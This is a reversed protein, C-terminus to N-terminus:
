RSDRQRDPRRGRGRHRGAGRDHRWDVHKRSQDRRQYRHRDPQERRSLGDGGCRHACGPGRQGLDPKTLQGHQGGVTNNPAAIVVGAGANPVAILGTSDTGIFNGAVVNGSSAAGTISVGASGNGSIINLAAAALGGVSGGVSNGSGTNISVGPGRNGLSTHGDQAVGIFNGIILNNSAVKNGSSIAIAPIAGPSNGGNGSIVNTAGAVSGGVTVNAADLLIGYAGNGLAAQGTSDTGILNGLVVNGTGSSTVFIGEASNGSIVNAAGAAVGGITVGSPSTNSSGIAIGSINPIAAIGARNTGVYNGEILSAAGPATTAILIGAFGNGSLINRTGPTTGGITLGNSLGVLVGYQHNPIAIGGAADTGVLNGAITLAASPQSVFIGNETNGSLVNGAGASSGGITQGTGLVLVGSATNAIAVSGSADVGIYNGQVVSNSAAGATNTFEVGYSGNGSIVNRAAALTGGIIHGLGGGVLVGSGGNALAASGSPNTGIFNGLVEDASSAAGGISVGAGTNGSIVNGLTAAAGGITNSSAGSIVIGAGNPVAATGLVNLGVYNGAVVNASPSASTSTDIRVGVNTNGSIVNRSSQSGGGILNGPASILVGTLNALKANGSADTGIYNGQVVNGTTSDGQIRLGTINAAILNRAAATQGGITNNTTDANLIVGDTNQIPTLGTAASGILNGAILNGTSLGGPSSLLIGTSNGSILNRTGLVSGGGITNGGTQLSIGTANGGSIETVGSADTGLFNGTIQANGGLATDSIAAAKFGSIALGDIVVGPSNIVLGFGQAAGLNTGLLQIALKANSGDPATNPQSGSQSYGDITIADDLTPLPSGPIITQIGGGTIAFNILNAGGNLDAQTIADRLSGSGGDSTNKVTFTSLLQREELLELRPRRALLGVRNTRRLASHARHRM